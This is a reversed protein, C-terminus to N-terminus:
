AYGWCGFDAPMYRRLHTIDDRLLDVLRRRLELPIVDCEDSGLAPTGASSANPRAPRAFMREALHRALDAQVMHRTALRRAWLVLAPYTPRAATRYFETDIVEPVRTQDIGLFEYVRQVTVRRDVRLAESTVVLIQERPFHDFYRELQMAYKSCDLYLRNDLLAVEPPSKEVGTLVRHQYHSRLRVIPDRVLYILRAEPLVRAM